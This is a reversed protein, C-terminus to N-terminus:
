GRQQRGRFSQRVDMVGKVLSPATGITTSLRGAISATAVGVGFGIGLWILGRAVASGLWEVKDNAVRLQDEYPHHGRVHKCEGVLM